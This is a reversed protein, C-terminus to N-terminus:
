KQKANTQATNSLKTEVYVNYVLRSINNRKFVLNMRFPMTPGYVKEIVSSKIDDPLNKMLSSFCLFTTKIGYADVLSSKTHLRGSNSDFLDAHFQIGKNNCKTIISCKYKTHDAFWM